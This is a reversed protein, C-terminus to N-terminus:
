LLTTEEQICVLIAAVTENFDETPAGLSAKSLADANKLAGNLFTYWRVIQTHPKIRIFYYFHECDTGVTFKINILFM